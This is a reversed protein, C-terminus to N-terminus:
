SCSVPTASVRMMMAAVAVSMLRHGHRLRGKEFASEADLLAQKYQDVTYKKGLIKEDIAFMETATAVLEGGIDSVLGQSLRNIFAMGPKQLIGVPIKETLYETAAQAAGAALSKPMSYGEDLSQATKEAGSEAAMLPLMAGGGVAATTGM